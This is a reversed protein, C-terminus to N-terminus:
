NLRRGEPTEVWERSYEVRLRNHARWRKVALLLRVLNKQLEAREAADM